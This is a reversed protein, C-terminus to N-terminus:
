KSNLPIKRKRLWAEAVKAIKWRKRFDVKDEPQFHSVTGRPSGRLNKVEIFYVIDGKKAIIDIEGRKPGSLFHPSYNKDLIQYGKKEL